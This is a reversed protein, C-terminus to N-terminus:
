RKRSVDFAVLRTETPMPLGGENAVSVTAGHGLTLLHRFVRGPRTREACRAVDGPDLHQLGRRAPGPHDGAEAAHEDVRPSGTPRESWSRVSGRSARRTVKTM